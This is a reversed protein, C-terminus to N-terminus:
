LRLLSQDFDENKLARDEDISRTQKTQLEPLISIEILNDVKEKLRKSEEDSLNLNDMTYKLWEETGIKPFLNSIDQIIKKSSKKSKPKSPKNAEAVEGPSMNFLDELRSSLDLNVKPMEVKKCESVKEAKPKAKPKAKAKAKTMIFM